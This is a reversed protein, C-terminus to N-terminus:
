SMTEYEPNINLLIKKFKKLDEWAPRKNEPAHLLVRPHWTAVVPIGNFNLTQGHLSMVDSNTHLLNKVAISGACLIAKPKLAAIQADLFQRCAVAEEPLPARNAPLRCKVINLIYCNKERSLGIASLMKDLLQGAPGALPKGQKAEEESPAEVIVLVFPNEAGVGSVVNKKNINTLTSTKDAAEAHKAEVPTDDSFEPMDNAFDPSSFGYLSDSATKLLTYIKIKDDKKLVM